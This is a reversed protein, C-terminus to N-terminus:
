LVSCFYSAWSSSSSFRVSYSVSFSWLFSRLHCTIGLVRPSFVGVSARWLSMRSNLPYLSYSLFRCLLLIKKLWVSGSQWSALSCLQWFQLLISGLVGLLSVWKHFWLIFTDECDSCGLEGYVYVFDILFFLQFISELLVFLTDLLLVHIGAFFGTPITSLFDYLLQLSFGLHTWCSMHCPSTLAPLFFCALNRTNNSSKLTPPSNFHLSVTDVFWFLSFSLHM